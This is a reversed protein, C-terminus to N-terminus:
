GNIEIDAIWVEGVSEVGGTLYITTETSRPFAILFVILVFVSIIELIYKKM